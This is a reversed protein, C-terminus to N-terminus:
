VVVFEKVSYKCDNDVQITFLPVAVRWHIIKVVKKYGSLTLIYDKTTISALPLVDEECVFCQDKGAKIFTDETILEYFDSAIYSSVYKIRTEAEPYTNVIMGRFCSAIDRNGSAASIISGRLFGFDSM